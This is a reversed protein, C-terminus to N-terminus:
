RLSGPRSVHSLDHWPEFVDAPTQGPLHPRFRSSGPLQRSLPPFCDSILASAWAPQHVDVPLFSSPTTPQDGAGPVGAGIWAATLVDM